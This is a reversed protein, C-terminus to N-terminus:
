PSPPPPKLQTLATAPREFDCFSGSCEAMHVLKDTLYRSDFGAYRLAVADLMAIDITEFEEGELAKHTVYGRESDWINFYTRYRDPRVFDKEKFHAAVDGPIHDGFAVVITHEPLKKLEAVFKEYAAVSQNMRENYDQMISCQLESLDKSCRTSDFKRDKDHPSHQRMTAVFAFVPEKSLQIQKVTEDFFIDDPMKNWKRKTCEPLSPCDIFDQMGLQTHFRKGAYFRGSIPYITKTRYGESILQPAIRGDLHGPAFLNISKWGVGYLPPAVGHLFSIEQVWTGGGVTYVKLPYAQEFFKGKAKFGKLDDPSFTSEELIVVINPKQKPTSTFKEAALDAKFCCYSTKHPATPEELETRWISQVFVPLTNKYQTTWQLDIYFTPLNLLVFALAVGGAAKLKWLKNAVPKELMFGVGSMFLCALIALTPLLGMELLTEASLAAVVLDPAVLQSGLYQYKIAAGIWLGGIITAGLGTAFWARRSALLIVGSLSAWLLLIYLRNFIFGWSGSNGQDIVLM